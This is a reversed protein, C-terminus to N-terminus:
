YTPDETQLQAEFGSRWCTESYFLGLGPRHLPPLVKWEMGLSQRYNVPRPPDPPEKLPRLPPM